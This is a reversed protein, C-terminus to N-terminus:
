HVELLRIVGGDCGTNVNTGDCGVAVLKEISIMNQDLFATISSTLSISKGNVQSIQGLYQSSHERVLVVHEEVITVPHNRGGKITNRMTKDKRGDFYLGELIVKIVLLKHHYSWGTNRGREDSRPDTL